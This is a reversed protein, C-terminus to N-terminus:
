SIAILPIRSLPDFARRLESTTERLFMELTPRVHAELLHGGRAMAESTGVVVHGHVKHEAGDRTIDGLLSLVELQEALAIRRYDKKDWDFWGLVADKFGGIATFSAAHLAQEQAFQTLVGIVEDSADFILAFTRIGSKHSLLTHKM